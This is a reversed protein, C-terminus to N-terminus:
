GKAYTPEPCSGVGGDNLKKSVSLVAYLKLSATLDTISCHLRALGSRVNPPIPRADYADNVEACAISADALAGFIKSPSPVRTGVKAAAVLATDIRNLEVEHSSLRLSQKALEKRDEIAMLM